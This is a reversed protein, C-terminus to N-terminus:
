GFFATNKVQTGLDRLETKAGLQNLKNSFWEMCKVIDNRTEVWASVSKIAVADSM